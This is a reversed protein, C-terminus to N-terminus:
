VTTSFSCLNCCHLVNQHVASFHRRLSSQDSFQKSCEPCEQRVLSHVTRLHRLLNARRTTVYDCQECGVKNKERCPQPQESLELEDPYLIEKRDDPWSFEDESDFDELCDEPSSEIDCFEDEIDAFTEKVYIDVEM